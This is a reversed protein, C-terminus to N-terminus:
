RKSRYEAMQEEMLKDAAEKFEQAQKHAEDAAALNGFSRHHRHMQQYHRARHNQTLFNPEEVFGHKMHWGYSAHNGLHCGSALQKIGFANLAACCKALLATAIGRRHRSPTIMIPCIEPANERMSILLAGVLKDEQVSVFSFSKAEQQEDGAARNFFRDIEREAENHFSENSYGLYEIGQDFSAIFLGTLAQRAVAHNQLSHIACDSPLRPSELPPLDTRRSMTTYASEQCQFYAVGDLLEIKWGLRHPMNEFEDLTMSIKEVPRPM